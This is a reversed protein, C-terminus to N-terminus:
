FYLTLGRVINCKAIISLGIDAHEQVMVLMCSCMKSDRVILKKVIKRLFSNGAILNWHFIAYPMCLDCMIREM